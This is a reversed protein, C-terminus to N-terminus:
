YIDCISKVTHILTNQKIKLSIGKIVTIIFYYVLEFSYYKDLM